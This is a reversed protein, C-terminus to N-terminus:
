PRTLIHLYLAFSVCCALNVLLELKPRMCFLRPDHSYIYASALLLRLGELEELLM